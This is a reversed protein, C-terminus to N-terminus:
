YPLGAPQYDLEPEKLFDKAFFEKRTLDVRRALRVVTARGPPCVHTRGNVRLTLCAAGANHIELKQSGLSFLELEHRSGRASWRALDTMKSEPIVTVLERVYAVRLENAPLTFSETLRGHLWLRAVAPCDPDTNLLYIVRVSSTGREYVAYRVRDGALLRIEGQEGALVTRLLDATFRRIGPDGPYEWVTVLFAKGKGLTNEVLVPQAALRDAAVQYFDDHGCLVRATTLKVHAPTFNGLFRPDTDIRWLPLPYAAISSDALCKIGRVATEGKGLIRVGFLDRFDGGRYLTLDAARDTHTSLHPLSMVLHGGSKVYAKLKAYIAPTMTNWGLFLLCSYSKLVQLPAEIPVADYQGYPPNGSFDLDGRVTETPWDQRRHFTDLLEWGDEAPGSLWKEHQSQGWVQPNWLAPAGDHHGHVVGLTVRPGGPPRRSIKSFQYAERLVGRVRKTEPSHFDFEQGRGQGYDYHGSEPWVYGAGSIAAHYVATKWRKIWLEDFHTGGYCQMAIHTGWPKGFAKAAGRIAAHMRHPDGPMSELCLNDIGAEAHYKFVLASDVNLLPGRGLEQREYDIIRRLYRLYARHAQDVTQVPPLAAFNEARRDIVYAQPWYLIGGAEGITMRGHYYEGASDFIEELDAKSYFESRPLRRRAAWCLGGDTDGRYLLESFYLHIRHRKCYQAVALAEAKDMPLLTLVCEGLKLRRFAELHTVGAPVSAGIWLAQERGASGGGRSDAAAM